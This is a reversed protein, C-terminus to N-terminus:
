MDKCQLYDKILGAPLEALVEYRERVSAPLVTHPELMRM